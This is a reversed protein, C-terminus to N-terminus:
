TKAPDNPVCIKLYDLKNWAVNAYTQNTLRRWLVGVRGVHFLCEYSMFNLWCCPWSYCVCPVFWHRFSYFIDTDDAFCTPSRSYGRLPCFVIFFVCYFVVNDIRLLLPFHHLLHSRVCLTDWKHSAVHQCADFHTHIHMPPESTRRHTHM